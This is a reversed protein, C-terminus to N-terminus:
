CTSFLGSYFSQRLNTGPQAIPMAIKMVSCLEKITGLLLCGTCGLTLNCIFAILGSAFLQSTSQGNTKSRLHSIKSNPTHLNPNRVM